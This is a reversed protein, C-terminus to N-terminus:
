ATIRDIEAVDGLSPAWLGAKVNSAVQAASTAGAIVSAVSPQAALGGMAVDLLTVGRSEAFATLGEVIDFNRDTLMEDEAGWAALRSESPAPVGRKYKGTLVGSALPFYPLVGLGYEVCAPVVDSEIERDLLSYENQVSIFHEYGRTRATWEAHAVQFGSFNSSGIYRVKGEHVLETLAALTEEIPTAPDPRHLQYLDIYDTRLRRLSSEIARRIYRRSGRANWDKGNSGHRLTSGFKTALVVD